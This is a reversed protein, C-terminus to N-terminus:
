VVEKLNQQITKEFWAAPVALWDVQPAPREARWIRERGRPARELTIVPSNDRHFILQIRHVTCTPSYFYVCFLTDGVPHLDARYGLKLLRKVEKLNRWGKV